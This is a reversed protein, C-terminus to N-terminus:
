RQQTAATGLCYSLGGGPAQKYSGSDQAKQKTWEITFKEGAARNPVLDHTPMDIAPLKGGDTEAGGDGSSGSRAALDRTKVLDRLVDMGIPQVHVMMTMVKPALGNLNADYSRTVAERHWGVESAIPTVKSPITNKDINAVEWFM